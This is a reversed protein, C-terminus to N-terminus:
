GDKEEMILDYLQSANKIKRMNGNYGAEYNNRGFDNEFAFWSVWTDEGKKINEGVGKAVAELAVDLYDRLCFMETVEFGLNSMKKFWKDNDRWQKEIKDLLEVFADKDM